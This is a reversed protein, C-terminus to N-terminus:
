INHLKIREDTNFKAVCNISFIVIVNVFSSAQSARFRDFLIHWHYVLKVAHM